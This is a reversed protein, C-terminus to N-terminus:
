YSVQVNFGIARIASAFSELEEYSPKAILNAEPQLSPRALTYLLVGQLAISGKLTRLLELYALKEKEFMANGSIKLVCTQLWTPCISATIQLNHLFNNGSGKCHNITKRGESTVSDLKFWVQGNFKKFQELAHRVKEQGILSGNTILVYNIKGLIGAQLAIEGVVSLAKDFNKLSTPEGNGSIAIDKITRNTSEIQFHEYFDGHMVYNLFGSLEQQLLQLDLDPPSGLILNPVQCYVCRWNCANNVNFNIGISLGGARRSIVPYVYKLGAVDRSHDNTTLKLAM